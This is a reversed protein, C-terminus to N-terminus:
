TAAVHETLETDQLTLPVLQPLSVYPGTSIASPALTTTGLVLPLVPSTVSMQVAPSTECVLGVQATGLAVSEPEPQVMAEPPAEQAAGNVQAILLAVVGFRKLEVVPIWYVVADDPM